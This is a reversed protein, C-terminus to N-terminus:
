SSGVKGVTGRLKILPNVEIKILTKSDTIKSKLGTVLQKAINKIPIEITTLPPFSMKSFEIGDYGIISIDEPIKLGLELSANQAGIAMLDNHCLIATPKFSSSFLSYVADVGGQYSFDSEILQINEKSVSYEKRAKEFGSIREGTAKLKLPGTICAIKVHGKNMLLKGSMYGGLENNINFETTGCLTEVSRVGFIIPIIPTAHIEHIYDNNAQELSVLIIGDVRSQMLNIYNKIELENFHLFCSIVICGQEYCEKEIKHFLEMFFPNKNAITIIGITKLDDKSRKLNTASINRVYGTEKIAQNIKDRTEKKLKKRNNIFNSVTTVSINAHKAVDKMTAM